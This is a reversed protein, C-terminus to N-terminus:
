IVSITYYIYSCRTKDHRILMHCSLCKGYKRTDWAPLGDGLDVKARQASTLDNGFSDFFPCWGVLSITIVIVWHGDKPQFMKKGFFFVSSKSDPDGGAALCVKGNIRLVWLHSLKYHFPNPSSGHCMAPLVVTKLILSKKQHTQIEITVSVGLIKVPLHIHISTHHKFNKSKIWSEGKRNPYEWNCVPSEWSMLLHFGNTGVVKIHAADM